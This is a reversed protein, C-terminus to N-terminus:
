SVLKNRTMEDVPMANIKRLVSNSKFFLFAFLLKIKRTYSGIYQPHYPNWTPLSSSVPERFFLELSSLAWDKNNSHVRKLAPDRGIQFAGWMTKGFVNEGGDPFFKGRPYKGLLYFTCIGTEFEYFNLIFGCPIRRPRVVWRNSLDLKWLLFFTESNEEFTFLKSHTWGVSCGCSVHM